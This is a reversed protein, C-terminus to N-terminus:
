LVRVIFALSSYAPIDTTSSTSSSDNPITGGITHTHDPTTSTSPVAHSHEKTPSPFGFALGPDLTTPHDSGVIANGTNPVTHSHTGGSGTNGSVSGGHNHSNLNHTHSDSGGTGIATAGGFPTASADVGRIIRLPTAPNTPSRMLAPKARGFHPSGATTVNGGDCYEFGTPAAPLPAGVVPPWYALIGGIPVTAQALGVKQDKQFARKFTPLNHQRFTKKCGMYLTAGSYTTMDFATETGAINSFFSLTWATPTTEDNVTVRGYVLNGAADTLEDRGSTVLEVYNNPAGTQTVIGEKNSAGGAAEGTFKSTVDLTTASPAVISAPEFYAEQCSLLAGIEAATTVAADVRVKDPGSLLGSVSTTADPVPDSGDGAHSSGHVLALEFDERRTFSLDGTLITTQGYILTTDFLLLSDSRLPPAVALGVDAQASQVVDFQVAEDLDFYVQAANGDTRLDSPKRRFKVFVAVKREKGAVTVTTSANNEDTALNLTQTGSGLDANAKYGAISNDLRNGAQDWGLLENIKVTLNPVANEEADCPTAARVLFGYGLGDRFIANIGQEVDQFMEDLESQSLRQRFYTDHLRM